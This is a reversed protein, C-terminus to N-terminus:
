GFVIPGRQLMGELAQIPLDEPQRSTPGLMRTAFQELLAVLPKPYSALQCGSWDSNGCTALLHPATAGLLSAAKPQPESYSAMKSWSSWSYRRLQVGAPFYQDRQDLMAM